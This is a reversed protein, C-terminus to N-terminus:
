LLKIKDMKCYIMFCIIYCGVSIMDYIKKKRNKFYAKSWTSILCILFFIAWYVVFKKNSM